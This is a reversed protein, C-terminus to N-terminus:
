NTDNKEIEIVLNEKNYKSYYVGFHEKILYLLDQMAIMEGNEIEKEEIVVKSKENNSENFNGTLIYGNRTQEILLKNMQKM